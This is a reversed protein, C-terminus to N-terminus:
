FLKKFTMSQHNNFYKPFIHEVSGVLKQLHLEDKGDFSIIKKNLYDITLNGVDFEIHHNPCLAIINNSHDYGQATALGMVHAGVVLLKGNRDKKDWGCIVCCNGSLLIGYNRERKDRRM